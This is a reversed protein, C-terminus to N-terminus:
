EDAGPTLMKNVEDACLKIKNSKARFAACAEAADIRRHNRHKLNHIAAVKAWYMNSHLVQKM